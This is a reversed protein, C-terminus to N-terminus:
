DIPIRTAVCIGAGDFSFGGGISVTLNSQPVNAGPAFTGPPSCRPTGGAPEPPVVFNVQYLGVFGGVLGAFLAQPPKVNPRGTYPKLPLANVSYNFNLSYTQTTPAATPAPQGTTAPPNVPGLGVAWATLAEGVNAPKSASVLTGDSHTVMPACPLGTTNLPNPMGLPALMVDCSTLVHVQDALANLEIAAGDHGNATFFLQAPLLTPRLCLPCLPVLEYPIQVTVATLASCSPLGAVNIGVLDPCGSLPRVDLIPVPQNSTQRLTATVGGLTLPLTGAPARVPQPISLGDVFFTLLQGPAVSVPAPPSYGAGVVANTQASLSVSFLLGSILGKFM